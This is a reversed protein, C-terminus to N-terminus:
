SRCWEGERAEGKFLNRFRDSEWKYGLWSRDAQRINEALALQESVSERIELPFTALTTDL